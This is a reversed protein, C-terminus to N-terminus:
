KITKSVIPTLASFQGNKSITVMTFFYTDPNLNNITYSTQNVNTVKFTSVAATKQATQYIEYGKIESLSLTSGDAKKNPISWRITATNQTANRSLGQLFRIFRPTDAALKIYNVTGNANRYKPNASKADETLLFNSWYSYVENQVNIALANAPLQLIYTAILIQLFRNMILTNALYFPQDNSNIYSFKYADHPIVCFLITCLTTLIHLTKFAQLQQKPGLANTTM